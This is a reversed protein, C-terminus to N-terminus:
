ESGLFSHCDLPSNELFILIDIVVVALALLHIRPSLNSCLIGCWSPILASHSVFHFNGTLVTARHSQIVTVSCTVARIPSKLTRFTDIREVITFELIKFGYKFM